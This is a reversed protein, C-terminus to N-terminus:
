LCMEDNKNVASSFADTVIMLLVFFLLSIGFKLFTKLILFQSRNRLGFMERRIFFGGLLM